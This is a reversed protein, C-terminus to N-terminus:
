VAAASTDAARLLAAAKRQAEASATLAKGGGTLAEVQQMIDPALSLSDLFVFRGDACRLLSAQTGIDLLGGIRFSGRINWFDEAIQILRM